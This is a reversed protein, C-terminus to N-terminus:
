YFVFFWFQFSTYYKNQFQVQLAKFTLIPGTKNLM